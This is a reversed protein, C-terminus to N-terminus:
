RASTWHEGHPFSYRALSAPELEVGLGHGVPARYRGQEVVLRQVMHEHLHEAYETMRGDLSGSVAVWDFMSFHQVHECLGIGGAHPCVPV